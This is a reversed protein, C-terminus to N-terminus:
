LDDKTNLIISNSIQKEEILKVCLLLARPLHYMGKWMSGKLTLAKSGDRHLYGYWEGCEKDNFHEFAWDHVIDFWKEYKPEGTIFRALLLAYIAETHPWWLKMDWELQEAPKGEIDVFSYIGGYEKDWGLEMSWELINLAKKIIDNDKRHIGEHMLFWATEIAHGPNICRGQPSDIRTGDAAANEFLACEEPKYFNELVDELLQDIEREYQPNDPEVERMNQSTALLIMTLSLAKTKRTEPYVKPEIGKPNKYLEMVMNYVRKAKELAEKDGSAKSYEAYAIIAFTESFMYRRKRLPKGDYTVQFFMRGDKDFGYKDIFEIGLKSIELWEKKKELQNYLRSFMWAGRGQFWVSKDTNYLKWERDFCTYYGGYKYDPANKEWYSICSNVLYDKYFRCISDMRENNM